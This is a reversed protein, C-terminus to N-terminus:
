VTEYTKDNRLIRHLHLHLCKLVVHTKKARVDEVGYVVCRKTTPQRTLDM